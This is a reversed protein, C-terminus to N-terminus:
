QCTPITLPQKLNRDKDFLGWYPEVGGYQEKWPQDFGEFYFYETGNANAECVYTNSCTHWQESQLDSMGAQAGGLTMFKTENASTPWGTEALYMNPKNTAQAAVQVNHEDFYSWTWKAAQAAPLEGFWPHVNSMFFDIKEALAVSFVSGADGTGVPIHKSLGMGQLTTNFREIRDSLYKLATNYAAGSTSSGVQNLMYENGVAIGDVMDAGYKSIADTLNNMQYTFITDDQNVYIAPYVTMNVGTDKIAQMVLATVNCNASYLRLRTTLQSLIQIDKTVESQKAGCMPPVAGEPDYAMGWFVKHLRDDKTFDGGSGGGSGSGGSGSSGSGNNKKNNQSVVVGAVVGAIIAALLIAGGIWWWKKKSSKPQESGYYAGGDYQEKRGNNILNSGSEQAWIEDATM